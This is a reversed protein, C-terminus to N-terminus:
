WMIPLPIAPLKPAIAGVAASYGLVGWIGLLAVSGLVSGRWRGGSDQERRRQM